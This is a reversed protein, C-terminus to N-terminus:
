LTSLSTFSDSLSPWAKKKKKKKKLGREGKSAKNEICNKKPSFGKRVESPYLYYFCEIAYFNRYLKRPEKLQWRRHNNLYSIESQSNTLKPSILNYMDRLHSSEMNSM